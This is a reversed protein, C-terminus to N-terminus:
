KIEPIITTTKVIIMLQHSCFVDTFSNKKTKQRTTININMSSQITTPKESSKTYKSIAWSPNTMLLSSNIIWLSPTLHCALNSNEVIIVKNMNREQRPIIKWPSASKNMMWARRCSYDYLPYYFAQTKLIARTYPDCPPYKKHNNHLNKMHTNKLILRSFSRSFSQM